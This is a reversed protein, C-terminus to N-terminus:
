LVIFKRFYNAKEGELGKNNNKRDRWNDEM